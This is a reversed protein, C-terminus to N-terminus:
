SRTPIPQPTADSFPAAKSGKQMSTPAVLAGTQALQTLGFLGPCECEDWDMTSALAFNQFHQAVTTFAAQIPQKIEDAVGTQVFTDLIAIVAAPTLNVIDALKAVTMTNKSGDVFVVENIDGGPPNSLAKLFQNQTVLFLWVILGPAANGPTMSFTNNAAVPNDSYAFSQPIPM